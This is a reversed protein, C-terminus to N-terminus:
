IVSAPYVGNISKPELYHPLFDEQMKISAHAVQQLRWILGALTNNQWSEFFWGTKEQSADQGGWCFISEDVFNMFIGVGNVAIFDAQELPPTNKEKYFQAIENLTDLPNSKCRMAFIVYPVHHARDFQWGGRMLTPAKRRKLSKVSLGQNLGRVLEENSKIDPKIEIAADIGEAFLLTFKGRSDVTYPHNPNCVVCDVSDSINGFTDRIKGKTIRHPFAFFRSIFEQFANERFDAVEQPTGKGEISAKRFKAELEISDERLLAYLDDM